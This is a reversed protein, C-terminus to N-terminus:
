MGEGRGASPGAPTQITVFIPNSALVPWNDKMVICRYYTTGSGGAVPDEFALPTETGAAFTRIVKGGRIVLVRLDNMPTGDEHALVIRIHPSASLTLHQGMAATSTGSADSVSFTRLSLREGPARRAYMAGERLAKLVGSRTPEDLLFVTQCTAADRPAQGRELDLEGIAWVPRKRVGACYEMLVQDWVGGPKGVTYMGEEFVAFGTYGTTQLLSRTYPETTFVVSDALVSVPWPTPRSVRQSVEPHAWFTLAGREGAYDIVAQYPAEGPDGHYQDYVGCWPLTNMLFVGGALTTVVGPKISHPDDVAHLQRARVIMALGILLVPAPWFEIFCSLRFAHPFGNTISPIREYDEPSSLGIILLHKHYNRVVPRGSLPSSEWYYAPIAETGDITVVGPINEDTARVEEVYRRAGYTQISERANRVRLLHRLPPLGYEVVTQDHPTIVAVGLGAREVLDVAEPISIQREGAELADIHVAGPVELREAPAASLGPPQFGALFVL